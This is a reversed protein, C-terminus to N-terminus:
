ILVLGKQWYGVPWRGAYYMSVTMEWRYGAAFYQETAYQRFAYCIGNRAATSFDHRGSKFLGTDIGRTAAMVAKNIRLRIAVLEDPFEPFKYFPDHQTASTPMWEIDKYKGIFDSDTPAVFAEGVNALFILGESTNGQQGMEKFFVCSSIREIETDVNFM